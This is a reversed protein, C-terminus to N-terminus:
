SLAAWIALVGTQSNNGPVISAPLATLGTTTGNVAWDVISATQGFVNGAASLGGGRILSPPTAANFMLALWVFGPGITQAASLTASQPGNGTKSDVNVSSLLTGSSSYLGAFNQGAVPSTPGTSQAWWVTSVTAVSRVNIRALYISGNTATTNTSGLAPHFNWAIAGHDQPLSVNALPPMPMVHHGPM